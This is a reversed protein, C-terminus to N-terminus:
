PISLDINCAVNKNMAQMNCLEIMVAVEGVGGMGFNGEDTVFCISCDDVVFGAEFLFSLFLFCARHVVVCCCVVIATDTALQNIGIGRYSSQVTIMFNM